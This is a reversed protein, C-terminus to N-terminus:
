GAVLEKSQVSYLHCLNNVGQYATFTLSPLALNNVASEVAGTTEGCYGIILGPPKVFSTALKLYAQPKAFGRSCVIDFHRPFAAVTSEAREVRVSLNILQLVAQVRQLFAGRKLQSEVATFSAGPNVIALPVVPSGNGSGLDIVQQGPMILGLKHLHLAEGVLGHALQQLGRYATLNLVAQYEDVLKLYATLQVLTEASCGTTVEPLVGRLEAASLEVSHTYPSCFNRRKVGVFIPLRSGHKLNGPLAFRRTRCKGLLGSM